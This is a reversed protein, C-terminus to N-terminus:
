PLSTWPTARTRTLPSSSRAGPATELIAFGSALRARPVAATCRTSKWPRTVTILVSTGDTGVALISGKSATKRATIKM